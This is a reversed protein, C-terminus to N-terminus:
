ILSTPEPAASRSEAFLKKRLADARSRHPAPRASSRQPRDSTSRTTVNFSSAPSPTLKTDSVSASSRVVGVPRAHRIAKPTRPTRAHSRRSRIAGANGFRPQLSFAEPTWQCCSLLGTLDPAIGAPTLLASIARRRSIPRVETRRISAALCGHLFWGLDPGRPGFEYRLWRPHWRGSSCTM